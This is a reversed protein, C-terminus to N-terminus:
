IKEIKADISEARAKQQVIRKILVFFDRELFLNKNEANITILIKM